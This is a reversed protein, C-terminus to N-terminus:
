NLKNYFIFSNINYANEDDIYIKYGINFIDKIKGTNINKIDLILKVEKLYIYPDEFQMMDFPDLKNIYKNLFFQNNSIDIM